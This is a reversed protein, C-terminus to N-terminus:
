SFMSLQRALQRDAAIDRGRTTLYGGTLFGDAGALMLLGQFDKMVTERGAAFKIIKSPHALRCIAFTKAIEPVSVPAAGELPTGDIPVLVNLPIVTVDLERLAFIMAVREQMSEGVGLIGGCCVGIGNSRLRRITEIREDVGHTTAILKGYRRPDVQINLNYHAVGHRALEATPEDGLVGLSACVYLGPLERHLLDIMGLIREFEPTVKLYGYGSTVIGFHTVGQEWANRAQELVPADDVLGYVEVNASNHKSQACFRCNEGCVGSKANMISCAHVAGHNAAHRNKVKNALSVLDLVESDPLKALATALELSAPEGTDLVRYAQEIDPHLRSTM